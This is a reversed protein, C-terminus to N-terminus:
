QGVAPFPDVMAGYVLGALASLTREPGPSAGLADLRPAGQLERVREFGARQEGGLRLLKEAVADDLGSPGGAIERLVAMAKASFDDALLGECTERFARVGTADDLSGAQRGLVILAALSYWEGM